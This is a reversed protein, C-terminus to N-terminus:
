RGEQILHGEIVHTLVQPKVLAKPLMKDKVGEEVVPNTEAVTYM